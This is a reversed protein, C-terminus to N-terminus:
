LARLKQQFHKCSSHVVIVAHSKYDDGDDGGDGDGGDDDGDDDDGDDGDNDGSDDGGGVPTSELFSLSQIFSGNASAKQEKLLWNQIGAQSM